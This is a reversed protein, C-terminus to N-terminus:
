DQFRVGLLNETIGMQLYTQNEGMKEEKKAM